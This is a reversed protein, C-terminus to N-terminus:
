SVTAPLVWRLLVQGAVNAYVGAALDDVLIGWGGPLKEARRCPPLKVIDFFRFCLFATLVSFYIPSTGLAPLALLTLAQGAWEDITVHSPDKRGFHGEAWRGYKVCGACALLLVVLMAAQRAWWNDTLQAVLLFILCAFLSGWTGPAHRLYGSGLGTMVLKPLFDM